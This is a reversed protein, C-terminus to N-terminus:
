LWGCAQSLFEPVALHLFSGLVTVVSRCVAWPKNVM